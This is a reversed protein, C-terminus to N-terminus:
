LGISAMTCIAVSGSALRSSRDRIFRVQATRRGFRLATSTAPLWSAGRTGNLTTTSFLGWAVVSTTVSFCGVAQFPTRRAAEHPLAFYSAVNKVLHRSLAIAVASIFVAVLDSEDGRFTTRLSASSNRSSRAGQSAKSSSDLDAPGGHEPPNKGPSHHCTAINQSGPLYAARAQIQRSRQQSAATSRLCSFPSDLVRSTCVSIRVM